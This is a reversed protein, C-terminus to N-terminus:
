KTGVRYGEILLIKDDKDTDIYVQYRISDITLFGTFYECFWVRDATEPPKNNLKYDKWHPSTSNMSGRCKAGGEELKQLLPEVPYGVPFRGRLYDVVPKMKAAEDKIYDGTPSAWSKFGEFRFKNKRCAFDSAKYMLVFLFLIKFFSYLFKKWIPTTTEQKKM